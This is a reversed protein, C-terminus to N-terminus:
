KTVFFLGSETFKRVCLKSCINRVIGLLFRKYKLICQLTLSLSSCLYCRLNLLLCSRHKGKLVNQNRLIWFSLFHQVRNSLEFSCNLTPAQTGLSYFLFHLWIWIERVVFAWKMRAVKFTEILEIDLNFRISESLEIEFASENRSFLPWREFGISYNNPQSLCIENYFRSNDLSAILKILPWGVGTQKIRGVSNNEKQVNNMISILWAKNAFM